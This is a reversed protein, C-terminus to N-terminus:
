PQTSSQPPRCPRGHRVMERFLRIHSARVITAPTRERRVIKAFGSNDWVDARFALVGLIDGGGSMAM